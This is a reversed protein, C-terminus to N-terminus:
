NPEQMYLALQLHTESTVLHLRLAGLNLFIEARVKRKCLTNRCLDFVALARLKATRCGEAAPRMKPM